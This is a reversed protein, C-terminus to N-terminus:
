RTDPLRMAFYRTEGPTRVSISERLTPYLRWNRLVLLYEPTPRRVPLPNDNM